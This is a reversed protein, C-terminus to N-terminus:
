MIPDGVLMCWPNSLKAQSNHPHQESVNRAVSVDAVNSTRHLLHMYMTRVTFLTM